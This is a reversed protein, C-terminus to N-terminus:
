PVSLVANPLYIKAEEGHCAGVNCNGHTADIMPISDPCASAYTRIPPALPEDTWFNGNDATLMRVVKGGSDIIYTRRNFLTGAATFKPGLTGQHCQGLCGAGSQQDYRIPHHGTERAPEQLDCVPTADIPLAGADAVGADALVAGPTEITCGAGLAIV